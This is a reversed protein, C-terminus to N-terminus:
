LRMGVAGDIEASAAALDASAEDAMTTGDLRRYLEAFVDGIRTQLDAASAYM